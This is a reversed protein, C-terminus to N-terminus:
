DVKKARLHMKNYIQLTELSFIFNNEKPAENIVKYERKTM